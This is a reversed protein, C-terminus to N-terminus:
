LKRHMKWKGYKIAPHFSCCCMCVCGIAVLLFSSCNWKRNQSIQKNTRKDLVEYKNKASLIEWANGRKAMKRNTKNTESQAKAMLDVLKLMSFAMSLVAPWHLFFFFRIYNGSLISKNEETSEAFAVLCNSSPSWCVSPSIEKRRHMKHATITWEITMENNLMSIMKLVMEKSVAISLSSMFRYQWEYAVFEKASCDNEFPALDCINLAREGISCDCM